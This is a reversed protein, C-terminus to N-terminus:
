NWPDRRAQESTRRRRHPEGRDYRPQAQGPRRGRRPSVASRWRRTPQSRIILRGFSAPCIGSTESTTRHATVANNVSRKKDGSLRVFIRTCDEIMATIAIPIVNTITPPPKSRETPEVAASEPQMALMTMSCAPIAAPLRAPIAAPASTPSPFPSTIANRWTLGKMVVSPEITRTRPTTNKIVPPAGTLPSVPRGPVNM